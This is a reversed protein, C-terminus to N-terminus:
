LTNISAHFSSFSMSACHHTLKQSHCYSMAFRIFFFCFYFMIEGTDVCTWAYRYYKWIKEYFSTNTYKCKVHMLLIANRYVHLTLINKWLSTVEAWWISYLIKGFVLSERKYYETTWQKCRLYHTTNRNEFCFGFIKGYENPVNAQFICVFFVVMM